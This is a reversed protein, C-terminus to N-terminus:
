VYKKMIEVITKTSATTKIGYKDNHVRSVKYKKKKLEEFLEEYKIKSSFKFEKELKHPNVYGLIDLEDKLKTLLKECEKKDKILHLNEILGEVVKKNNLERVYTKGISNESELKLIKTEQTKTDWSIHSLERVKKLADQRGEEVKFFIRFFHKNSFSLLPTLAKEYKAGQRQTYAILNRLGLEEHYHTKKVKIGYRRECTKPYTGCLAATDTATVCIIGNHKIRQCASDIFPVPSGFPDIEIADFYDKYLTTQANSIQYKVKRSSVKNKKFNKKVDEIASKSIDGILIQSFVEPITKLFRIERIGTAAMPDAYKIKKNFYTKLFLISIDRNIKMEPNYFVKLKKTIKTDYQFIKIEEEEVNFLKKKFFM